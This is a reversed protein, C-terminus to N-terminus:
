PTKASTVEKLKPTWYVNTDPAFHQPDTEAYYDGADLEGSRNVDVWAMLQWTGETLNLVKTDQAPLPIDMESVATFQSGSRLGQMIRVNEVAQVAWYANILGHGYETFDGLKMATRELIDRVESKPIGNALMLGIVGAVHPTAMSTGYLGSTRGLIDTSWVWNYVMERQGGTGGPAMVLNPYGYNSYPARRPTRWTGSVWGSDVAGVAIVEPFGAPYRIQPKGDNGASAVLIAGAAYARQVAAHQHETYEVGSLSMNIVDAPRPNNPKDPQDNLLGAAYLIGNAVKWTTTRRSSDFVRVPLIDVDWMVGAASIGNNTVAGITGAVHTGHGDVDEITGEGSFDRAHELDLQAALDPHDTDVGTDLVAIRVQRSGTTVAWAQPLRILDYHWWQHTSYFPDNPLLLDEPVCIYNHEVSLVGTVQNLATLQHEEEAATSLAWNRPQVLHAAIVDLTDLVEYGAEALIREREARSLNPDMMVVFEGSTHVEAAGDALEEKAGVPFSAGRSGSAGQEVAQPFAHEFSLDVFLLGGTGQPVATFDVSSRASSVQRTPPYFSWGDKQPTVTVRGKVGDARWSGDAGTETRAPTQPGEIVIQVSPVGENSLDAVRGSISYPRVTGGGFCGTALVSLVILLAAM